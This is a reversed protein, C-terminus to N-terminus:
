DPKKATLSNWLELGKPFVWRGTRLVYILKTRVAMFVAEDLRGSLATERILASEPYDRDRGSSDAVYIIKEFLTMNGHGTTHFKISNQSDRDTLGFKEAAIHAGVYSHLLGPRLEAIERPLPIKIKHELAYKLLESASMAKACDHVLAAAVTKAPDAGYMDALELALKATEVSHKYRKPALAGRLFRHIDQFYLGKEAIFRRAQPPISGPIKGDCWLKERLQTSSVDPFTGPLLLFDGNKLPSRPRAGTVLRALKKVLDPKKWKAFDGICDSGALFFLEAQPFLKKLHTLTQYTYVKRNQSIEFRDVTLPQNKFAARFTKEIMELRSDASVASKRKFPSHYAPMIRIEDPKIAKAAAKLLSLHGKHPPDFSGGYVM